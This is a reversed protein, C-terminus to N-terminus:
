QDGRPAEGRRVGWRWRARPGEAGSREPPRARPASVQQRRTQKKEHSLNVFLFTLFGVITVVGGIRVSRLIAGGYKGTTPDYHYCLLLVQDTVTGLRNESAEVLAFRLDRPPFEIGLLYRAVVGKATVVYIAAAHAYQQIHEDFAYHFGIAAALAKISADTGTLFHWGAATQPRGYQKVYTAKKEGALMPGEKPNISVVVVDFDKGADFPLTKLSGTMGNLVQTCLMPCEYYALALVVPRKGFYDGLRVQSGRDDVFPLDLPLQQGIRQDISVKELIVPKKNAPNLPPAPMGMGQARVLVPAGLLIAVLWVM